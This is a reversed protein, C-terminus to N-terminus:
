IAPLHVSLVGAIFPIGAVVMALVLALLCIGAWGGFWLAWAARGIARRLRQTRTRRYPGQMQIPASM